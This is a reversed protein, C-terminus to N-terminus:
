KRAPKPPLVGTPSDIDGDDSPGPAQDDPHIDGMDPEPPWIFVGSRKMEYIQAHLQATFVKTLELAIFDANPIETSLWTRSTLWFTAASIATSATVGTPFMGYIPATESEETEPTLQWDIESGEDAM